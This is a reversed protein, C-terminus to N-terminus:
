MKHNNIIRLTKEKHFTTKETSQIEDIGFFISIYEKKTILGDELTNLIKIKVIANNSAFTDLINKYQVDEIEFISLYIFLAVFSFFSFFGRFALTKIAKNKEEKEIVEKLNRKLFWNFIIAVNLFLTAVFFLIMLIFVFFVYIDNYLLNLEEM